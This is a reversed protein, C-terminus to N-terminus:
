LRLVFDPKDGTDIFIDSRNEEFFADIEDATKLPLDAGNLYHLFDPSDKIAKEILKFEADIQSFGAWYMKQPELLTVSANKLEPVFKEIDIDSKSDKLLYFSFRSDDLLRILTKVITTNNHVTLLVAHKM